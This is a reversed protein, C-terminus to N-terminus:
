RKKTTESEASKARKAAKARKGQLERVREGRKLLFKVPLDDPDVSDHLHPFLDLLMQLEHLLDNLQARAGRKTLELLHAPPKQRAM